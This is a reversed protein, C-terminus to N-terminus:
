LILVVCHRSCGMNDHLAAVHVVTNSAAVAMTAVTEVSSGTGWLQLYKALCGFDKCAGQASVFGMVVSPWTEAPGWHFDKYVHFHM